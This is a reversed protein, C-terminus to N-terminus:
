PWFTPDCDMNAHPTGLKSEAYLGDNGFVGHNPSCPLLCFAPRTTM